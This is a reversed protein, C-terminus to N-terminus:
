LASVRRARQDTQLSTGRDGEENQLYITGRRTVPAFGVGRIFAHRVDIQIDGGAFVLM